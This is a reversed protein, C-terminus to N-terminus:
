GFFVEGVLVIIGRDYMALLTLLWFIWFPVLAIVEFPLFFMMGPNQDDLEMGGEDDTLGRIFYLALAFGGLLVLSNFIFSVWLVITLLIEAMM